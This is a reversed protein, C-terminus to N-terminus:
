YRYRLGSQGYVNVLFADGLNPETVTWTGGYGFEIPISFHRFLILEVGIGAGVTVEAQFTGVALVPDVWEVPDSDPVEYGEAVTEIPVYGRHRGGAFVYLAGALWDTFAEGYVRRQYEGGITYDLTTGFPSWEAPDLPIYIIGGTVQFANRGIWRHYHIGSGSIPGFSGGLAQPFTEYPPVVEEAVIASSLFVLLAVVVVTRRIQHNNM